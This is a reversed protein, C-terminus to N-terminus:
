AGVAEGGDPGWFIVWTAFGPGYGEFRHVAGAEVFIVDGPGFGRREEGKVFTGSGNIVIYLEDQDHPSQPDHPPIPAYIGVRMSGHRIPYHFRKGEPTAELREMIRALPVLWDQM